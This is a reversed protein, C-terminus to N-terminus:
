KAFCPLNLFDSEEERAKVLVKLFLLNFVYVLRVFEESFIVLFILLVKGMRCLISM